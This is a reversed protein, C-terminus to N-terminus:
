LKTKKGLNELNRKYNITSGNNVLCERFDIDTTGGKLYFLMLFVIKILILNNKGIFQDSMILNDDYIEIIVNPIKKKKKM